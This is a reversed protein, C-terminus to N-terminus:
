NKTFSANTTIAYNGSGLEFIAKGNELKLLKAGETGAIQKGDIKVDAELSAPLYMIARTNAPISVQWSLSGNAKKWHSGILGYASRYSANVENLDVNFEPKMIVKKFAVEGADSKIGALNEYYWILLDGLLMVHNQSNMQPNATNGNWLEWITTAGNNIMYGWSPYSENSALALAIDPRGFESLGRMLWQTGIVGTSIHMKDTITIKDRINNFVSVRANDPTIGFYLPLLNATVTNNDYFNKAANFFKKNFADRIKIALEDYSKSDAAQGSIGAFKKM